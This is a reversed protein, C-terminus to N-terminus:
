AQSDLWTEFADPAAMQHGRRTPVYHGLRDPDFRELAQWISESVPHQESYALLVNGSGGWM